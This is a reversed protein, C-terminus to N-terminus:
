EEYQWVTMESERNFRKKTSELRRSDKGYTDIKKWETNTEITMKIDDENPYYETVVISEPKDSCSNYQENRTCRRHSNYVSVQKTNKSYQGGGKEESYIPNGAADYKYITIMMSKSWYMNGEEATTQTDSVIRRNIYQLKDIVKTTFPTGEKMSTTIKSVQNGYTDFTTVTKDNDPCTGAAEDGFEEETKVYSSDTNYVDSESKTLKGGEYKKMSIQRKQADFVFKTDVTDTDARGGIDKTEIENGANDYTHITSSLQGYNYNTEKVVRGKSDYTYTEITTDSADVKLEWIENHATDYKSYTYEKTYKRDALMEADEASWESSIVLSSDKIKNGKSDYACIHDSEIYRPKKASDYTYAIERIVNKKDDYKYVSSDKAGTKMYLTQSMTQEGLANFTHVHKEALEKNKMSSDKAYYHLETISKFKVNPHGFVDFLFEGCDECFPVHFLSAVSDKKANNIIIHDNAQAAAQMCLLLAVVNLSLYKSM